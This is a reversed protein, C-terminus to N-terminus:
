NDVSIGAWDLVQRLESLKTPEVLAATPGLRTLLCSAAEPDQVLADLTERQPCRLVV